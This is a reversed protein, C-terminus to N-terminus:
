QYFIGRFVIIRLSLQTIRWDDKKLVKNLSHSVNISISSYYNNGLDLDYGLNIGPSLIIFNFDNIKGQSLERIQSPPNTNFYFNNPEIVKEYIKYDNSLNFGVDFFASIFFYSTLIRYKYGAILNITNIKSNLTFETKLVTDPNIPFSNFSSFNAPISSFSILAFISNNALHWYEGSFGFSFGSSNQGNFKCCTIAEEFLLFNSKHMFFTKEANLGLFFYPYKSPLRPSYQWDFGQSILMISNFCFYLFTAILTKKM